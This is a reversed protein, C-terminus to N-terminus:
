IYSFSQPPTSIKFEALLDKPTSYSRPNRLKIAHGVERDEFYDFFYDRSIGAKEETVKWLENLELTLISEIEVEGVVMQVPSSAYLVIKRVEPSKFIQRRFEFLKVGALIKEAFKPKISLIVSTPM